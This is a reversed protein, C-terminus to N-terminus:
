EENLLRDLTELAEDTDLWTVIRHKEADLYQLFDAECGTEVLWIFYHGKPNRILVARLGYRILRSNLSPTAYYGWSKRVVDCEAGAATKLTIQEDPELLIEACDKIRHTKRVGTVQFIRPPDAVNLKM